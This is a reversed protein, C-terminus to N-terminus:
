IAENLDWDLNIWINVDKSLQFVAVQSHSCLFVNSDICFVHKKRVASLVMEVFYAKEM